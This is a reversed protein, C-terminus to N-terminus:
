PIAFQFILINVCGTCHLNVYFYNVEIQMLKTTSTVLASRVSVLQRQTNAIVDLMHARKRELSILENRVSNVVSSLESFQQSEEWSARTIFSIPDSTTYLKRFFDYRWHIIFLIVILLTIVTYKVFTRNFFCLM